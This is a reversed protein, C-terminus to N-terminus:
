LPFDLASRLTFTVPSHLALRAFHSLSHPWLAWHRIQIGPCVHYSLASGQLNDKTKQVYAIVHVLTCMCMCVHVYVCIYVHVFVCVRM